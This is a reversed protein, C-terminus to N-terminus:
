EDDPPTLTIAHEALEAAAEPAGRAQAQAAAADLTAALAPDPGEAGLEVHRARQEPGQVVQGRRRHLARRARPRLRRYAVTALLPHAFRFRDGHLVLVGDALAPELPEEPVLELTPEALAAVGALPEGTEAPLRELREALLRELEDPVSLGDTPSLLEGRSRLARALELAFFPNGGSQDYIRRLIPRPFTADLQEQLLRRVAGLSLPGLALRECRVARAVEHGLAADSGTRETMVVCLPQDALRRLAFALAAATPPDIWQIDDIGLLLPREEALTRLTALLAVGIARRDPAPGDAEKLLLAVALPRRQVPPLQEIVEHADGLLDALAAFSLTREAKSPRALLVRFGRERAAETAVRWVATKGIGAEGELVLAAAGDEPRRELFARLRALEADRGIPAGVGAATHM